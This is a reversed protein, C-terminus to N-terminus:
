RATVCEPGLTLAMSIRWPASRKLRAPIRDLRESIDEGIVHLAGGCPCTRCEPSLSSKRARCIRRCIAVIPAAARKRSAGSSTAKSKPKADKAALGAEVDELVLVIQDESLRESSRDFHTRRLVSIIHDLRENRAILRGVEAALM